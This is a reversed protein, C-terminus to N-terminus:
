APDEPPTRNDPPPILWPTDRHTSWEHGCERCRLVVIVQASTKSEVRCPRGGDNAFCKPCPLPSRWMTESM